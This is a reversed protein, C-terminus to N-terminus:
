EEDLLKPINPKLEFRITKDQYIYIKDILLELTVKNPEKCKIIEDFYEIAQKRKEIKEELISKENKQILIQLNSIKTTKDKELQAYTNEIIGKQTMDLAVTLDKIKQALLIKYEEKLIRLDEKM